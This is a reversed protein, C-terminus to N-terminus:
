QLLELRQQGGLLRAGLHAGLQATLVDVAIATPLEQILGEAMDLALQREDAM